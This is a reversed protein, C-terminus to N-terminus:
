PGLVNVKEPLKKLGLESINKNGYFNLETLKEMRAVFDLVRNTLKVMYSIDLKQLLSGEAFVSFDNDQLDSCGSITLERLSNIKAIASLGLATIRTSSLKLVILNTLTSFMTPDSKSLNWFTLTLKRLEKMKGILDLSLDGRGADGLDLEQLHVLNGLKQLTENTLGKCKYLRLTKLSSVSAISSIQADHLGSESLDLSQLNKFESLFSFDADDVQVRSLNLTELNQMSQLSDKLHEAKLNAESLVLEKMNVLGKLSTLDIDSLESSDLSLTHLQSLSGVVKLQKDTLYKCSALSLNQLETLKTLPTFDAEDYGVLNDLVLTKLKRFESLGTLTDTLEGPPGTVEVLPDTLVTLTDSSMVELNPIRLEELNTLGSLRLLNRGLLAPADTLDLFKLHVQSAIAQIDSEEPDNELFPLTLAQLGTMRSLHSISGSEVHSASLNLEKVYKLQAISHLCESSLQSANFELKELRSPWLFNNFSGKCLNLKLHKLGELQCFQDAFNSIELGSLSLSKLNKLSSLCKITSVTIRSSSIKVTHLNPCCNVVQAVQDDTIDKVGECNLARISSGEAAALALLSSFSTIHHSFNLYFQDLAEDIEARELLYEKLYGNVERLIEYSDLYHPNIANISERFDLYCRDVLPKMHFRSGLILLPLYRSLIQSSSIGNVSENGVLKLLLILFDRIDIDTLDVPNKREFKKFYTDENFLLSFYTSNSRLIEVVTKSLFLNNAHFNFNYFASDMKSNLFGEQFNGLSDQSSLLLSRDKCSFFLKFEKDKLDAGFPTPNMACSCSCVKESVKKMSKFPFCKSDDKVDVSEALARNLFQQFNECPNM